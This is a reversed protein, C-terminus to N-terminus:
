PFKCLGADRMKEMYQIATEDFNPYYRLSVFENKQWPYQIGVDVGLAGTNGGTVCLPRVQACQVSDAGMEVLKDVSMKGDEYLNVEFAFAQTTTLLLAGLLFKRM